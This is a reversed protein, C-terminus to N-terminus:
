SFSCQINRQITKNVNANRSARTPDSTQTSMYQPHPYKTANQINKEFSVLSQSTERVCQMSICPCKIWLYFNVKDSIKRFNLFFAFSDEYRCAIKICWIILVQVLYKDNPTKAHLYSMHLNVEKNGKDSCIDLPTRMCCFTCPYHLYKTDPFSCALDICISSISSHLFLM